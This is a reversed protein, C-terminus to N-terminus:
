KKGLALNQVAKFTDADLMYYKGCYLMIESESDTAAVLDTTKYEAESLRKEIMEKIAPSLDSANRNIHPQIDSVMMFMDEVIPSWCFKFDGIPFVAYLNGYSGSHSHSGSTFVSNSRYRIGMNALFWDDAVKSIAKNTTVPTRGPRNTQISVSPLPDSVGRWLPHQWGAQSLFPKCNQQLLTFIRAPGALKAAETIIDNVKM